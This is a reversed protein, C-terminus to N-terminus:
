IWLQEFNLQVHNATLLVFYLFNQFICMSFELIPGSTTFISNVYVRCTENMVLFVKCITKSYDGQKTFNVVRQNKLNSKRTIEKIKPYIKRYYIRFLNKFAADFNHLCNYENKLVIEVLEFQIITTQFLTRCCVRM